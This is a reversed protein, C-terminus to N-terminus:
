TTGSEGALSSRVVNVVAGLHELRRPRRLTFVAIRTALEACRVLHDAETRGTLLTAVYSNFVLDVAAQRPPRRVVAIEDGDEVLFLARLVKADTEFRDVLGFVDKDDDESSARAVVTAGPGLVASALEDLRMGPYAPRVLPPMTSPELCVVDDTVLRAGRAVCAAALTSKGTGSPGAFAAVQSGFSVASAHLVLHGRQFLAIALASGALCAGLSEKSGAPDRQVLVLGGSEILARGIGPWVLRVRRADATRASVDGELDGVPAGAVDVIKVDVPSAGPVWTLGPLLVPSSIALGYARYSGAPQPSASVRGMM